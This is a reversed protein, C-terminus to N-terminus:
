VSTDSASTESASTDSASTDTEATESSSESEAPAEASSLYQASVYAEGNDYNICAWQGDDTLRVFDVVTGAALTTLIDADTSPATRVNLNKTTTYITVTQASTEETSAAETTAETTVATTTETTNDAKKGNRVLRILLLVLIIILVPILIKLLNYPDFTSGHRKRRPARASGYRAGQAQQRRLKRQKAESMYTYVEKSLLQYSSNANYANNDGDRLAKEGLLRIKHYAGAMDRSIIGERFLDDIMETLDGSAIGNRKCRSKVIYELTQRSHIMAQRYEKQSLLKETERLGNEILERATKREAAM